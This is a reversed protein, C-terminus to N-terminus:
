IIDTRTHAIEERRLHSEEESLSVPLMVTDSFACICTQYPNPKSETEPLSGLPVFNDRLRAM